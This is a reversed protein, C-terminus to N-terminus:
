NERKSKRETKRGMERGMDRAEIKKRTDRHKEEWIESVRRESGM